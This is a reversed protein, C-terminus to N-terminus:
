FQFQFITASPGMKSTGLTGSPAILRTEAELSSSLSITPLDPYLMHDPSLSLRCLRM